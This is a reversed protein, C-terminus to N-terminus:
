ASARESDPSVTALLLAFWDTRYEDPLRWEPGPRPKVPRGYGNGPRSYQPRATAGHALRRTM